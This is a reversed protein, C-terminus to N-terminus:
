LGVGKRNDVIHKATRFALAMGTLVPNMGGNNVHVSCDALFLNPFDWVRCWKDTVSKKPDAGM